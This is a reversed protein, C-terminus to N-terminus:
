DILVKRSSGPLRELWQGFLWDSGKKSWGFTIECGENTSYFLRHVYYIIHIQKQLM